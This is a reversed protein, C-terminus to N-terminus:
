QKYRKRLMAKLRFREADGAEGVQRLAEGGKLM